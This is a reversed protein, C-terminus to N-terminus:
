RRRRGGARESNKRRGRKPGAMTEQLMQMKMMQSPDGGAAAPGMSPPLGEMGPLGATAQTPDMASPDMASLDTPGLGGVAAALALEDLKRLPM